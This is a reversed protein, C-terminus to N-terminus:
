QSLHLRSTRTVREILSCLLALTAHGRHPLLASRGNTLVNKECVDRLDQDVRTGSPGLKGLQDDVQLRRFGEAQRDRRQQERPRILHNLLRLAM